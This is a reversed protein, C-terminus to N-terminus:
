GADAMVAEIDAVSKPVGASLVEPGQKTILVDDEIRVGLGQFEAPIDKLKEIRPVYIGPEITLLQGPEFTRWDEEIRYDGVDHVDIGLWHSTNHPILHKYTEHCIIEEVDGQLLGLEVLGEVM